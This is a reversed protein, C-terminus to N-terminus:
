SAGAESCSRGIFKSTAGEKLVSVLEVWTEWYWEVKRLAMWHADRWQEYTQLVEHELHQPLLEFAYWDNFSTNCQRKKRM